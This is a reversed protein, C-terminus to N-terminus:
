PLWTLRVDGGARLDFLPSRSALLASLREGKKEPGLVAWVFESPDGHQGPVDQTVGIQREILSPRELAARTFRELRALAQKDYSRANAQEVRAMLMLPTLAFLHYHLARQGRALELPLAGQPTVQTLNLRYRQDAWDFLAEDGAGIAALAVALAAWDGHNNLLDRQREPATYFETVLRGQGALWGTIRQREDADIGPADRLKLWATALGALYWSRRYGGAANETERFADARAWSDLWLAACRASSADRSHRWADSMRAVGDVFVLVPKQMDENSRRLAPDAVSHRPDVYYSIGGLRAVPPPVPRCHAKAATAIPGDVASLPSVLPAAQAAGAVCLALGARWGKM